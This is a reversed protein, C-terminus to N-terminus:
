RVSELTGEAQAAEVQRYGAERTLRDTRARTVASSLDSLRQSVINQPNGVSLADQQEKYRQLAQESQEVKKRQEALQAELWQTGQQAQDFRSELDVHHIRRRPRQGGPRRTGSGAGRFLCQRGADPLRRERSRPQCIWRRAGRSAPRDFATRDESDPRTPGPPARPQPNRRPRQRRGSAPQRHPPPRPGPAPESGFWGKIRSAISPAPPGGGFEPHEWLKM